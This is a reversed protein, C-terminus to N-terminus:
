VGFRRNYLPDGRVVCGQAGPARRRALSDRILASGSGRRQHAPSVSGPDLGYWGEDRRELTVPSFALHGVVTVDITVVLSRPM